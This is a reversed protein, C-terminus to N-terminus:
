RFNLHRTFRGRALSDLTIEGLRAGASLRYISSFIGYGGEINSYYPTAIGSLLGDRVKQNSILRALEIGGASMEFAVSDAHRTLTSDEAIRGSINQFFAVTRYDHKLLSQDNRNLVLQNTFIKWHIEKQEIRGLSDRESYWFRIRMDYIGAQPNHQWSLTVIERENGGWNLLYGDAPVFLKFPGLFSTQAYVNHGRSVDNILLRYRSSDNLTARLRYLPHESNAFLGENKIIGAEKAQIRELTYRTGSHEDTLSVELLGAPYYVSDPNRAIVLASEASDIYGRQIRLYHVSDQIDFLGYVVTTEKYTGTLDIKLRCAPLLLQILILTFFPCAYRITRLMEIKTPTMM